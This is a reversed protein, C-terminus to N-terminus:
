RLLERLDRELAEATVGVPYVLRLVGLTDIAMLSATHAMSYSGDDGPEDHEYHVGYGTAVSRLRDEAGWVGRFGTNFHTVYEGLLVPTDREPDVTVMLTEVRKGGDGLATVAKSVTSLMTPCLDPCHTYGFYVLVVDGRMAELDVPDGDDFILGTMPPALASSQIVTGSYVYPRFVGTSLLAGVGVVVAGAVLWPWRRRVPKTPAKPTATKM